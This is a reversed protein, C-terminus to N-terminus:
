HQIVDGQESAIFYGDPLRQRQGDYVTNCVSNLSNLRANYNTWLRAAASAPASMVFLTHRDGTSQSSCHRDVPVSFYRVPAPNSLAGVVYFLNYFTGNDGHERLRLILWLQRGATSPKTVTLCVTEYKSVTASGDLAIVNDIHAAGLGITTGPHGQPVPDNNQVLAMPELTHPCRAPATLQPTQTTVSHAAFLAAVTVAAGVAPIVTPFAWHLVLTGILVVVAAAIAQWGAPANLVNVVLILGAVLVLYVGLAAIKKKGSAPAGGTATAPTRAM